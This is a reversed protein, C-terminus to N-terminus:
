ISRNLFQDFHAVIALAFPPMLLYFAGVDIALVPHV